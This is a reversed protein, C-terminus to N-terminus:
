IVYLWKSNVFECNNQAIYVIVRIIRNQRNCYLSMRRDRLLIKSKVPLPRQKKNAKTLAKSLKNPFLSAVVVSNKSLQGPKAFM